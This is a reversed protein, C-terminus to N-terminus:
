SKFRRSLEQLVRREVEGAVKEIDASKRQAGEIGAMRAELRDVRAALRLRDAVADQWGAGQAGSAALADLRKELRCLRALAEDLADSRTVQAAANM